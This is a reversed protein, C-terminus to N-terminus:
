IFGMRLLKNGFELFFYDAYVLGHDAYRMFADPNNNATAHKLISDFIHGNEDERVSLYQEATEGKYDSFSAREALSSAITGKVIRLSANLMKLGEESRGESILIQYLMVMGNAAILGASTDRLVESTPTPTPPADFDWLPVYPYSYQARISAEELRSLFYTALNIAADLFVPELTWKYTQTFGLVAWAQGRSWTSWDEYGQNTLKNLVQGTETSFNVLHYTSWNERVISRLVTHAHTTAIDILKKNGTQYGAYYLLDLNCMSDIIVLFNKDMDTFSYRKNIAQDWSRIARVTSNYRSALSNAATIISNLSETNGTLEWDLRLSPQIIFGMDHTDVRTEMARIPACWQRCLSLLRKHFESQYPAPVPLYRPYKVSRELVAYLSGPFFGCTWFMKERMTYKNAGPGTCPVYEPYAIPVPEKAIERVAVRWIKAITNESYLENLEAHLRAPYEFPHMQSTILPSSLPSSLSTGNYSTPSGSTDTSSNNIHVQISKQLQTELNLPGNQDTM